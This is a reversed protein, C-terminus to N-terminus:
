NIYVSIPITLLLFTIIFVLPHLRIFYKMEFTSRKLDIDEITDIDENKMTWWSIGHLDSFLYGRGPYKNYLNPYKERFRLQM